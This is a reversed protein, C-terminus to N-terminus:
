CLVETAAPALELSCLDGHEMCLGLCCGIELGKQNGEGGVELQSM